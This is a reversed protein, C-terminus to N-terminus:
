TFSGLEIVIPLKAAEEALHFSKGELDLLTFDPALEGPGLEVVIPPPTWTSWQWAEAQWVVGLTLVMVILCAASSLTWALLFRRNRM